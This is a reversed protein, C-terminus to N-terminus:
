GEEPPCVVGAMGMLQCFTTRAMKWEGDVLVAEGRHRRLLTRDGLAISFWVAARTTDYFHIEDARISLTSGDGVM